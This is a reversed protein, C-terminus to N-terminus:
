KEHKERCQKRARAAEQSSYWLVVSGLLTLAKKNTLYFHYYRIATCHFGTLVVVLPGLFNPRILPTPDSKVLM